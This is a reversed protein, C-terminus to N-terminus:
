GHKVAKNMKFVQIENYVREFLKLFDVVWPLENIWGQGNPLGFFHFNEWFNFFYPYDNFPQTMPSVTLESDGIIVKCPNGQKFKKLEAIEIFWNGPLEEIKDNFFDDKM